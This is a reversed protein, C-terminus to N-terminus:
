EFTIPQDALNVNAAIKADIRQLKPKVFETMAHIATVYEKGKLKRIEHILKTAGETEIFTKLGDWDKLGLNQKLVTRKNLSGKVKGGRKPNGKVFPM